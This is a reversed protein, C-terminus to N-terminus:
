AWADDMGLIYKRDFATNMGFASAPVGALGRDRGQAHHAFTDECEHRLDNPRPNFPKADVVSAASTALRTDM